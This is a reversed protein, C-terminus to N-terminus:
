YIVKDMSIKGLSKEQITGNIVNVVKIPLFIGRNKCDKSVKRLLDVLKNNKM